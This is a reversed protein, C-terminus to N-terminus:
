AVIPNVRFGDRTRREIGRADRVTEDREDREDREGNPERGAEHFAMSSPTEGGRTEEAERALATTKKKQKQDADRAAAYEFWASEERVRTEMRMAARVVAARVRFADGREPHGSALFRSQHALRLARSASGPSLFFWRAVAHKTHAVAFRPCGAPVFFTEGFHQPVDRWAPAIGLDRRLHELSVADLVFADRRRLASAALRPSVGAAADFAARAKRRADEGAEAAAAAAAAAERARPEGPHADALARAARAAAALAAATERAERQAEFALCPEDLASGRLALWRALLPADERAFVTWLRAVTENKMERKESALTNSNVLTSIDARSDRSAAFCADLTSVGLSVAVDGRRACTELVVNEFVRCKATESPDVYVDPVGAFPAAEVEAESVVVRRHTGVRTGTGTERFRRRSNASTRSRSCDHTETCDSYAMINLAGLPHVLAAFPTTALASVIAPPPGAGDAITEADYTGTTPVFRRRTACGPGPEDPRDPRDDDDDDADDDTDDDVVSLSVTTTATLPRGDRMAFSLALVDAFPTEETEPGAEAPSVRANTEFLLRAERAAAGADAAEAACEGAGARHALRSAAASLSPFSDSDISDIRKRPPDRENSREEGNSDGDGNSDEAANKKARTRRRRKRGTTTASDNEEEKPSEKGRNIRPAKLLEGAYRELRELFSAPVRADAQFVLAPAAAGDATGDAGWRAEARFKAFAEGLRVCAPAISLADEADALTNLRVNAVPSTARTGTPSPLVGAVSRFGGAARLSSVTFVDANQASPHRALGARRAAATASALCTPTAVCLFVYASADTGPYTGPSTGPSGGEIGSGARALEAALADRRERMCDACAAEGCLACARFGFSLELRADCGACRANRERAALRAGFSSENADNGRRAPIDRESDDSQLSVDSDDSDDARVRAVLSSPVTARLIGPTDLIDSPPFRKERTAAACLALAAPRLVAAADELARARVDRRMDRLSLAPADLCLRASEASDSTFFRPDRDRAAAGVLYEYSTGVDAAAAGVARAAAELAELSKPSKEGAALSSIQSIQEEPRTSTRLAGGHRDLKTTDAKVAAAAVLAPAAGFEELIGDWPSREAPTAFRVGGGVNAVRERPAPQEAPALAERAPSSALVSRLAFGPLRASSANLRAPDAPPFASNPPVSPFVRSQHGYPESRNAAGRAAALFLDRERAHSNPWQSVHESSPAGFAQTREVVATERRVVPTLWTFRRSVRTRLGQNGGDGEVAHVIGRKEQIALWASAGDDHLVHFPHSEAPDHFVIAANVYRRQGKHSIRTIRLRRGLWPHM